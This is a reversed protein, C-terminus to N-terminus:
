AFTLPLPLEHNMTSPEDSNGTQAYNM